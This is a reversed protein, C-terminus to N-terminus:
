KYTLDSVFSLANLVSVVTKITVYMKEKDDISLVFLAFTKKTCKQRTWRKHTLDPALEPPDYLYWYQECICSM